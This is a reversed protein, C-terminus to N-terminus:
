VRANLLKMLSGVPLQDDAADTALMREATADFVAFARVDVDPVDATAQDPPREDLLVPAGAPAAGGGGGGTPEPASRGSGSCAALFAIAGALALASRVYPRGSPPPLHHPEPTETRLPDRAPM